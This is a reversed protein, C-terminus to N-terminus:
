GQDALAAAYESTLLYTAAGGDYEVSGAAAMAGLWERM